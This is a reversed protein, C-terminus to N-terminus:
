ETEPEKADQNRGLNESDPGFSRYEGFVVIFVFGVLM